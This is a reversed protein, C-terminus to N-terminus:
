VIQGLLFRWMCGPANNPDVAGLTEVIAREIKLIRVVKTSAPTAPMTCIFVAAPAGM